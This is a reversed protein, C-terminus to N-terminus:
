SAPSLFILREHRREQGCWGDRKAGRRWMHAGSLGPRRLVCSGVGDSWANCIARWRTLIRVRSSSTCDVYHSAISSNRPTRNCELREPARNPLPPQEHAADFPGVVVEACVRALAAKAFGVLETGLDSGLRRRFARCSSVPWAFGGSPQRSRSARLVRNERWAECTQTNAREQVNLRERRQLIRHAPRVPTCGGRPLHRRTGIHCAAPM